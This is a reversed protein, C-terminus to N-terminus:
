KMTCNCSRIQSKNFKTRFHGKEFNQNYPLNIWFIQPYLKKTSRNPLFAKREHILCHIEDALWQIVRGYITSIGPKNFNICRTIDNEIVLLIYKPLLWNSNLASVISNRLRGLVSRNFNLEDGALIKVDFNDAIYSHYGMNAATEDIAPDGMNFLKRM